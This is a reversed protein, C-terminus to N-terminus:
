LNCQASDDRRWQLNITTYKIRLLIAQHHLLTTIKCCTNIGESRTGVMLNTWLPQDCYYYYYYYYYYSNSSGRSRATASERIGDKVLWLQEFSSLFRNDRGTRNPPIPIVLGLSSAAECYVDDTTEVICRVSLITAWICLGGSASSTPDDIEWEHFSFFSWNM